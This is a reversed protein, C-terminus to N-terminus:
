IPYSAEAEETEEAETVEEGSMCIRPTDAVVVTPYDQQLLAQEHTQHTQPM